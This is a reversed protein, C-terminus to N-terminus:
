ATYDFLSSTALASASGTSNYQGYKSVSSQLQKAFSQIATAVDTDTTSDTTDSTSTTSTTASLAATGNFQELMKAMNEKLTTLFTSEEDETITGDGNSDITNFLDETSQTSGSGQAGGSPPPGPPPGGPPPGAPKTGQTGSTSSSSTISSMFSEFESKTVKSDGDTDMNTFQSKPSEYLSSLDYNSSSIGSIM